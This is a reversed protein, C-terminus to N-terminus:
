NQINDNFFSDYKENGMNLIFLNVQARTIATYILEVSEFDQISDSKHPEIILFVTHSEWGKFSHISSLKVTGTKISFHNRRYRRITNIREEFNNKSKTELESKDYEEKTINQKNGKDDVTFYINQIGVLKGTAKGRSFKIKM